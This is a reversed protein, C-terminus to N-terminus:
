NPPLSQIILPLHPKIMRPKPPNQTFLRFVSIHTKITPHNLKIFLISPLLTPLHQVLLCIQYSTICWRNKQSFFKSFFIEGLIKSIEFDSSEDIIQRIESGIDFEASLKQYTFEYDDADILKEAEFDEIFYYGISTSQNGPGKAVDIIFKNENQSKQDYYQEYTTTQNNILPLKTLISGGLQFLRVNKNAEITVEGSFNSPDSTYYDYFLTNEPFYADVKTKLHYLQPVIMIQDGWFFQYQYAIKAAINDKPYSLPMSRFTYGIETDKSADSARWMLTFLNPLLEYRTRMAEVMMNKAGGSWRDSGPSQDFKNNFNHNRSYTFFSGVQQWRVCLEEESRGTFGCIDPGVQAFGFLSYDLASIVSQRLQTWTSFNDGFWHNALSGTGAFNSRTLIFGRKNMQNFHNRTAQSMSHGYLDKTDYFTGYSTKSELCITRWWLNISVNADYPPVSLSTKNCPMESNEERLDGFNSPENMDIWIGNLTMNNMTKSIFNLIQDNWWNKTTNKTFDPYHVLGPWVRGRAYKQDDLGSQVFVDQELGSEYPLYKEEIKIGPDLILVIKQHKEDQMEKIYEPLDGWNKADLSFDKFEDMYDIDVIGVDLPFNIKAMNQHVSKFDSTSKYGWKCLQFGLSWYPPLIPKGIITTYLNVLDQDSTTTDTESGLLFYFDLMGGIVRYNVVNDNSFEVDMANSNHLYIGNAQKTDDVNVLFTQHGYFHANGKLNRSFTPNDRNWIPYSPNTFNFKQQFSTKGHEGLGYIKNSKLKLSIQLFQDSLIISQPLIKLIETLSTGNSNSSKRSIKISNVDVIETSFVDKDTNEQNRSSTDYNKQINGAIDIAQKPVEYRQIVKDNGYDYHSIKMNLIDNKLFTMDLKAYEWLEGFINYNKGNSKDLKLIISQHTDNNDPGPIFKYAPVDYYCSPRTGDSREYNCGRKRCENRSDVVILKNKYDPLCDIYDFDLGLSVKLLCAFILYTVIMM